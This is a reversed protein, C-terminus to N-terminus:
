NSQDFVDTRFVASKEGATINRSKLKDVTENLQQSLNQLNTKFKETQMKADGVINQRSEHEEFNLDNNKIKKANQSTTQSNQKPQIEMVKEMKKPIFREEEKVQEKIIPSSQKIEKTENIEKSEKINESKKPSNEVISEKEKSFRKNEPISPTEAENKEQTMEESQEEPMDGRSEEQKRSKM